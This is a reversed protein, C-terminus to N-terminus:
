RFSKEQEEYHGDGAISKIGSEDAKTLRASYTSIGQFVAPADTRGSFNEATAAFSLSFAKPFIVFSM